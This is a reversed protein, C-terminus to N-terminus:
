FILLNSNMLHEKSLDELLNVSFYIFTLFHLVYFKKMKGFAFSLAGKLSSDLDKDIYNYAMLFGALVFFIEVGRAGFHFIRKEMGLYRYTHDLFVLIFALFRLGQLNLLVRM